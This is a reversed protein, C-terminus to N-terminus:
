KKLKIHTLGVIAATEARLILSGLDLPEIHKIHFVEKEDDHWGGEPGILLCPPLSAHKSDTFHSTEIQVKDMREIAAYYTWSKKHNELFATLKEIAHFRPIDFRECQQAAGVIQDRMKETNIKAHQTFATQLPFLDTVGLEVAKEILFFLRDPKIPSFALGLKPLITTERRMKQPLFGYIKKSIKQLIGEWEGDIENFGYFLDNEKLRLVHLAYHSQKEDLPVIKGEELSTSLYLRLM